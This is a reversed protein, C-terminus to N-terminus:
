LDLKGLRGSWGDRLARLFLKFSIWRLSNTATFWIIGGMLIATVVGITSYSRAVWVRNRINYFHKTGFVSGRLRSGASRLHDIGSGPVLWLTWGRSKLRLSYETDDYALFFRPDPLGVEKVASSRVMFGVFSGLAIERLEDRYYREAIAREIALWKGFTRRHMKALSDFEYVASCLAGAKNPMKLATSSLAQLADPRPVADDDMMWVWDCGRSIAEGLGFAFGGAGGLNKELRIVEVDPYDGLVRRACDTSANDIVLIRDLRRSQALLAQVVLRLEAPRNYTVVVAFINM